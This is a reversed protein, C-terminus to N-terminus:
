PAHTPKFVHDYLVGTSVAQVFKNVLDVTWDEATWTTPKYLGLATTLLVDGSYVTHSVRGRNSEGWAPWHPSHPWLGFGM